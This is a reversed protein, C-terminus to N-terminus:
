QYFRRKPRARESSVAIILITRSPKHPGPASSPCIAASRGLPGIPHSRSSTNTATRIERRRLKKFRWMAGLNWPSSFCWIKATGSDLLCPSEVSRGRASPPRSLQERNPEVPQYAKTTCDSVSFGGGRVACFVCTRASLRSFIKDLLHLKGADTDHHRGAHDPTLSSAIRKRDTQDQM